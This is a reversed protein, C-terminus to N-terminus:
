AGGLEEGVPAVHELVDRAGTVLVAGLERIMEHCGASMASTVPGPVARLPRGRARARAAAGRRAGGPSGYATAARAGVISVLRLCAFRLDASGRLWLAVPSADGLADLQTQWEPDGPCILRLGDRSWGALQASTPIQGIRAGWRRLARDLGPIGGRVPALDQEPVPGVEWLVGPEPQPGAPPHAPLPHLPHGSLPHRGAALAAIIEAPRCRRLLAGLVLDGPDAVHGLAARALREEDTVGTMVRGGAM